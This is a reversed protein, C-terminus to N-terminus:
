ILGRELQEDKHQWLTGVWKQTLTKIEADEQYNGQTIELPVPLQRVSIKVQKCRGCLLDWLTPAGQPYHITVDIIAAFQDGMLGLIMGIGGAKPMLLKKFNSKQLSRKEETFRTGELFNLISVPQGRFRECSRRVIDFDAHRKEPHKKLYERSHRNMFPFNLAWWVGGIVPIFFLQRKIFFRLFPIKRNFVKQLVVIDVWSQHNAVVLYSKNVDLGTVAPAQWDIHHVADLVWSNIQIWNEAAWVMARDIKQRAHGAIALFKIPLMLYILVGWFLTNVILTLFLVAGLMNAM